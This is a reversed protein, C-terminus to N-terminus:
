ARSRSTRPPSRTSRRSRGTSTRTRTTTPCRCCCSTSCTRSSWSSRSAARTSTACAPCAWSRAAPRRAAVRVHRRLLAGEAGVDAPRVRHPRAALAGHEGVARAPPPRPVDPVDHGRNSDRQRRAVRVGDERGALPARPEHQLDHRHAVPPHRLRALRRLEDRVRRLAGRGPAVLEHGPDRARGPGHRDRDLGRVGPTVSPFAAVCEDTYQGEQILRELTPARGTAIARELMAPKMADIVALVLKKAM